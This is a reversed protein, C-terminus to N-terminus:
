EDDDHWQQGLYHQARWEQERWRHERWAQNHYGDYSGVDYVPAPYTREVIVPAPAYPEVVVPAPAVYVPYPAIGSALLGGVVGGVIGGLVAAGEDHGQAFAHIPLTVLAVNTGLAIIWRTM